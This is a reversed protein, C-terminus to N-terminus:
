EVHEGDVRSRHFLHIAARRAVIEDRASDRRQLAQHERVAVDIGGVFGASDEREGARRPSMIPRPTM